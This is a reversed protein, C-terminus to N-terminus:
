TFIIICVKTDPVKYVRYRYQMPVTGFACSLKGSCRANNYRFNFNFKLIM